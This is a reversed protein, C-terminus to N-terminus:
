KANKLMSGLISYTKEEFKHPNVGKSKSFKHVQEEDKPAPNKQFFKVVEPTSIDSTLKKENKAEEEMHHLRDYYDPIEEIHDAATLKRHERLLGKGEESLPSVGLRQMITKATGDHEKEIETGM